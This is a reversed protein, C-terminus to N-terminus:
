LPPGSPLPLSVQFYQSSNRAPLMVSSSHCRISSPMARLGPCQMVMPMALVMVLAASTNPNVKGPAADILRIGLAACDIAPRKALFAQIRTLGRELDVGVQHKIFVGFYPSILSTGLDIVISWELKTGAGEPDLSYIGSADNYRFVQKDSNKNESSCGQLVAVVAMLSLLRRITGRNWIWKM